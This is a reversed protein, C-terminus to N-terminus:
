NGHQGGEANQEDFLLVGASIRMFMHILRRAHDPGLRKFALRATWAALHAMSDSAEPDLTYIGMQLTTFVVSYEEVSLPPIQIHMRDDTM